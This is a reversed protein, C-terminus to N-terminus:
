ALRCLGYASRALAAVAAALRASADNNPHITDDSMGPKYSVPNSGVGVIGDTDVYPYDSVKILTLGL